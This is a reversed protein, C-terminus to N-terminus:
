DKVGMGFIRCLLDTIEEPSEKCGNLVWRRVTATLGTNFFEQHYRVEAENKLKFFKQYSDLYKQDMPFDFFIDYDKARNASELHLKIAEKNRYYFDMQKRMGDRFDWSGDKSIFGQLLEMFQKRVVKEQLDYVDLFHGYFTTRHIKAERCIDAVTIKNLERSNALKYYACFIKEETDQFRQNNEVNM